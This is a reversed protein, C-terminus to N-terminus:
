DVSCEIALETGCKSCSIHLPQDEMHEKIEDMISNVADKNINEIDYAKIGM